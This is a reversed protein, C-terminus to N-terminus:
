NRHKSMGQLAMKFSTIKRLSTSLTGLSRTTTTKDLDHGTKQFGM